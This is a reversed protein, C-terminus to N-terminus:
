RGGSNSQKRVIGALAMLLSFQLSLLNGCLGVPHLIAVAVRPALMRLTVIIVANLIPTVIGATLKQCLQGSLM